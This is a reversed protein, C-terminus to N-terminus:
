SRQRLPDAAGVENELRERNRSPMHDVIVVNASSKMCLLRLVEQCVVNVIRFEDPDLLEM